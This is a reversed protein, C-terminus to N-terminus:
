GPLQLFMAEQICQSIPSIWQFLCQSYTRSSAWVIFRMSLMRWSCLLTSQFSCAVLFLWEGSFLVLFIAMWSERGGMHKKIGQRKVWARGVNELCNGPVLCLGFQVTPVKRPHGLSLVPSRPDQRSLCGHGHGTAFSITGGSGDPEWKVARWRIYPCTWM